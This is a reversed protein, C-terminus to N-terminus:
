WGEFLGGDFWDWLVYFVIQTAREDRRNVPVGVGVNMRVHQRRSLSVQMQPLLTWSPEEYGFDSSGVVELMPSFTRGFGGDAALTRGLAARVFFEKDAKKSSAPIEVGGQAHLFFERPLLRGFALYPEVIVTGAGRGSPEDGTPLKVEGGATVISAHDHFFASKWGLAIDSVGGSWSSGSERAGDLPLSAEWQHRAGVRREYIFETAVAGPGEADVATKWVAEDEPFAKETVLPLPLNLDGRPWAHDTCFGRMFELIKKIHEPDFAEGFAPMTSNFGRAPGGAHTIALWDAEAERSSFRCDAFDPLPATFGVQSPDVGRGDAGHCKVCGIQYLEKGTEPLQAARAPAPLWALAILAALPFAPDGNEFLRMLRHDDEFCGM